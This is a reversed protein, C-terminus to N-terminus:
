SREFHDGRRQVAGAAMLRDLHQQLTREEVADIFPMTAHPPYLIRQAVLEQMTLPQTLLDLLRQEREAIKGQFRILREQFLSREEIIGVHHFSVWVRAEIAAVKQLSREFDALDSWADGYYPGFSSLDIDGLFLLGEPEILLASHGRTHGPLHIARIRTGGLDWIAGDDFDRTDPREVYHFSSVLFDHMAADLGQYGYLAMMGAFSRLGPADARHAHVEAAPFLHVGAVHDEHVHSLLVIDAHGRLEAARDVVALSPDIMATASRGQVRLSNGQPYKGNKDGVLVTVAGFQRDM